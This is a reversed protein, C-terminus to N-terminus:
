LFLVPEFLPADSDVSEFGSPAFDSEAVLSLPEPVAAEVLPEALLLSDEEEFLSDVDDDVLAAGTAVVGYDTAAGDAFLWSSGEGFAGRSNEPPYPAAVADAEGRSVVAERRCDGPGTPSATLSGAVGPAPVPM